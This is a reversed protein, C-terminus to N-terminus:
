RKEKIVLLRSFLDMNLATGIIYLQKKISYSKIEGISYHIKKRYERLRKQIDKAKITQDKLTVRYLNTLLVCFRPKELCYLCPYEAELFSLRELFADVADLHREDVSSMISGSRQRYYYSVRQCLVLRKAEAMAKYTVFEDEHWKGVPYPFRRILEAKYLKNWATAMFGDGHLVTELAEEPSFLKKHYRTKREERDSYVWVVDSAAIEAKFEQIMTLLQEYYDQSIWDDSDVFGIYEGTAIALGANRADSLGGNEKHIVRIRNDKEAWTDCMAPCNDPSGDDVLIIELDTYTQDVISQVCRDLYPEVKYVPVIVSICGM